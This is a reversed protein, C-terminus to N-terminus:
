KAVEPTAQQLLELIPDEQLWVSADLRRAKALALPTRGSGDKAAPDAKAELLARCIGLRRTTVAAHLPTKGASDAVSAMAAGEPRALLEAVITLSGAEDEGEVAKLLLAAANELPQAGWRRLEAKFEEARGLGVWKLLLKGAMAAKIAGRRQMLAGAASRTESSGAEEAIAAKAGAPPAASSTAATRGRPFRPVALPPPPPTAAMPEQVDDLDDSGGPRQAFSLRARKAAADEGVVGAATGARRGRQQPSPTGSPSGAGACNPSDPAPAAPKLPADGACAGGRRLALLVAAGHKCLGGRTKFDVCSCRAAARTSYDGGVHVKYEGGGRESKVSAELGVGGVGLGLVRVASARLLACAKQYSGPNCALAVGEDGEAPASKPAVM